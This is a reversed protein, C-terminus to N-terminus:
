EVFLLRAPSRKNGSDTRGLWRFIKERNRNGDAYADDTQMFFIGEVQLNNSLGSDRVEDVIQAAVLTQNMQAIWREIYKNLISLRNRNRAM